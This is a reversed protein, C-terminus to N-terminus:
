RLTYASITRPSAGWAIIHRAKPAASRLVLAAFSKLRPRLGLIHDFFDNATQLVASILGPSSWFGLSFDKVGEAGLCGPTTKQKGKTM